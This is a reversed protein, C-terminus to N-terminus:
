NSRLKGSWDITIKKEKMNKRGFSLLSLSVVDNDFLEKLKIGNVHFPEFDFKYLVMKSGNQYSIEKSMGKEINLTFSQKGKVTIHIADFETEIDCKDECLSMTSDRILYSVSRKMGLSFSVVATKNSNYGFAVADFRIKEFNREKGNFFLHKLHGTNDANLSVFADCDKIKLDVSEFSVIKEVRGWSFSIFFLLLVFFKM